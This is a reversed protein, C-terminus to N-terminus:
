NYLVNLIVLINLNLKTIDASSHIGVSKLFVDFNFLSVCLIAVVKVHMHLEHDAVFVLTSPAYIKPVVFFCHVGKSNQV